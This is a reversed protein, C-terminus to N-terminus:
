PATAGAGGGGELLRQRQARASGAMPGDPYRELLRDLWYVAERADGRRGAALAAAFLDNQEALTSSATAALKHSRHHAPASVRAAPAPTSARAAPLPACVPWQEGAAVRAERGGARVVVVGEDVSVHTRVPFGCDSGEAEPALSVEFRTGRVEVEADPTAIIFRAGPGLKAVEARVRGEDLVFKQLAGLAVVRMDSAAGLRLRTGTGSRLVLEGGSPGHLRDGPVVAEGVTATGGEGEVAEVALQSAPDVDRAAAAPRAAVAPSAAGAPAQAIPHRAPWLSSAALAVAAAAAVGAALWPRVRRRARSRLAQEIAEVAATRDGLLAPGPTSALEERLAEAALTAYHTDGVERKV